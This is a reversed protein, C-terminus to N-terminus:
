GRLYLGHERIYGLVAPPLLYEVSSDGSAIKQRIERSSLEPLLPPIPSYVDSFGGRPAILPPALKELVEFDKWKDREGLIDSGILLRFRRSPFKSKLLRVTDVTYVTNFEREWEVVKIRESLASCGLRCMEVRHDFPALEKGFPHRYAPMMWVEDVQGSLLAWAAALFHGYHPPNFSGGFLATTLRKKM